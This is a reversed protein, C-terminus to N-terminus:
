DKMENKVEISEKITDAKDKKSKSVKDGPDKM